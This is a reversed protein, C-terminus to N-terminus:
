KEEEKRSNAPYVWLNRRQKVGGGPIVRFRNIVCYAGCAICWLTNYNLKKTHKHRCKAM